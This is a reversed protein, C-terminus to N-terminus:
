GPCILESSPVYVQEQGRDILVFRQALLITCECSDMPVAKAKANPSM